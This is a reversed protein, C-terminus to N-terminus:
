NGSSATDSTTMRKEYKALAEDLADSADIEVSDAFALLSSLVDGIEDSEIDIDAPSDDYDTSEAADKAVEGLKWDSNSATSDSSLAISVSACRSWPKLGTLPKAFDPPERFEDSVAQDLKDLIRQQTESDLTELGDAARKSLEWTWGDDSM